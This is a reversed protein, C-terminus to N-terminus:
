VVDAHHYGQVVMGDEVEFVVHPLEALRYEWEEYPRYPMIASAYVSLEGDGVEVADHFEAAEGDVIRLIGDVVHATLHVVLHSLQLLAMRFGLLRIEGQLAFEDPHADRRLGCIHIYLTMVEEVFNHQRDQPAHAVDEHLLAFPLYAPLRYVVGLPAVFERAVGVANLVDRLHQLLVHSIHVGFGESANKGVHFADQSTCVIFLIHLFLCELCEFVCYFTM